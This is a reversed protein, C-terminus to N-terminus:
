GFYNKITPISDENLKESLVLDTNWLKIRIAAEINVNTEDSWNAWKASGLVVPRVFFYFKLKTNTM